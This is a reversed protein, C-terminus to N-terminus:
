RSPARQVHYAPDECPEFLDKTEIYNSVNIDLLEIMSHYYHDHSLPANTQARICAENLRRWQLIAPSLWMVMPVHKQVDPALAYPMGHLFLRNEGLSEGHDSLYVMGPAYSDPLKKLADIVSALLHDTYAISNDYANNLEDLACTNLATNTCEPLFRKFAPPSRKSYAPGHSGMQHLVIVLGKAQPQQRAMELVRENLGQVLIEDLCEGEACLPNQAAISAQQAPWFNEVRDCVGKCGSNNEVWQVAFGGRRMIDLLNESERTRSFFNERGLPSFMCPLSDATNTGCSMVNQFSIVQRQALAPTTPRAYGNISFRDARATEGVVLILVPKKLLAQQHALQVSGAAPEFPLRQAQGRLAAASSYLVNLPNAMYRLHKHNRMAASLQDSAPLVALVAIGLSITAAALNRGLRKQYGLTQSRLLNLRWIWWLPLLGVLLCVPLGWSILDRTERPDTQFVNVMMSRDIVVNYNLMFYASLSAILLLVSTLPKILRASALLSLLAALVAMLVVSFSLLGAWTLGAGSQALHLWERWLALNGVSGLWFAVGLAVWLPDIVSSYQKFKM